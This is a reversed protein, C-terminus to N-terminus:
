EDKDMISSLELALLAVQKKKDINATESFSREDWEAGDLNDGAYFFIFYDMGLYECVAAIASSEMEVAKVGLRKFHAIKDTTERYFADTSWIAGVTHGFHLSDLLNIFESKYKPNIEITDSKKVYHYSTGEERYALDPIIISCDEISSDLVGCNGFIIVKEVGQAHLVEIDMAIVPAGVGAIFISFEEGEYELLYVKKDFNVNHILGVEKCKFKKIIENFLRKSFVGIAVKPLRINDQGKKYELGRPRILPEKKGLRIM